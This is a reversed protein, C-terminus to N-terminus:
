NGEGQRMTLKKLRAAAYSRQRESLSMDKERLRYYKIRDELPFLARPVPSIGVKEKDFFTVLRRRALRSVLCATKKKSIGLIDVLDDIETLSAGEMNGNTWIVSYALLENGSLLLEDRMWPKITIAMSKTM